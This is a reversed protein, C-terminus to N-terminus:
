QRTAGVFARHSLQDSERWLRRTGGRRQPRRRSLRWPRRERCGADGIGTRPLERGRHMHAGALRGALSTSTQLRPRGATRHHARRGTWPHPTQDPDGFSRLPLAGLELPERHHEFDRAAWWFTAQCAKDDASTQEHGEAPPKCPPVLSGPWWDSPKTDPEQNIGLLAGNLGVNSGEAHLPHQAVRPASLGVTSSMRYQNLNFGDTIMPLFNYYAFTEALVTYGAMSTADEVIQQKQLNTLGLEKPLSILRDKLTKLQEGSVLESEAKDVIRNGGADFIRIHLNSGILAVVVLQRGEIPLDDINSISMLRLGYDALSTPDNPSQPGDALRVPLHNRLKIEMCQGAEARLVLPELPRGASFEARLHDLVERNSLEQPPPLNPDTCGSELNATVCEEPERSLVYALAQRDHIGFRQSYTVGQPQDCNGYLQCVQVVSIEFKKYSYSVKSDGHVAEDSKAPECINLQRDVGAAPPKSIGPLTALWEGPAFQQERGGDSLRFPDTKGNPDDIRSFARMVGWMGDWLQDISSGFYLYDTHTNQIPNVVVDFEFHESIGLPQANTYGSNASDPMRHWKAGNMTFIHQAEQAGQILRIQVPDGEYAALIPTAPDGFLRWPESRVIPKIKDTAQSRECYKQDLVTDPYLACNFDRRWNEVSAVLENTTGPKIQQTSELQAFFSKSAPSLLDMPGTPKKNTKSDPQLLKWYPETALREAFEAHANTAFGNSMDGSCTRDNDPCSTQSYDFGGLQANWSATSIRLALPDNRYNVLQTGPDESSIALPRPVQTAVQRQGFRRASVDRTEPNIPELAMNYVGAFDAIAIAFERRTQQTRQDDACSASREAKLRGSDPQLPHSDPDGICAPATINASTATPGGDERVSMPARPAIPSLPHKEQTVAPTPKRTLDSGGLLKERAADGPTGPQAAAILDDKTLPEGIKSWTSNAPEIVLGAYLGHQQHSSPGMHDHTFVTRLTNDKFKGTPKGQADRQEVLIPDAWWRQTTRQAGCLPHHQNLRHEYADDTEGIAQDPCRGKEYLKRYRPDDRHAYIDGGERFLPHAMPKLSRDGTTRRHAFIRERVEDPSFTTDEYNWGNGSGDSSTVDFKVLHIHQGITDTPTYVQFDDVNLGSPVFNSSKFDICEGSNARFFLPEPLRSRTNPDIVDKIDNELVVIRGQPDFWGHRNVTLETQIFAARYKREPTGDPCPNAYPAGSARPRGNVYFLPPDKTEDSDHAKQWHPIRASWETKYAKYGNFWEAFKRPQPPASIPERREKATTDDAPLRGEHFAMADKEGPEGSHQLPKIHITEWM